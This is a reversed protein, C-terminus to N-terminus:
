NGSMLLTTITGNIYVINASVFKTKGSLDVLSNQNTEDEVHWNVGNLSARTQVVVSGTIIHQMTHNAYASVNVNVSAGPTTVGNFLTVELPTKTGSSSIAALIQNSTALASNTTAQNAATAGTGQANLIATLVANGAGSTAIQTVQNASTAVTGQGNLIATLVSNGAGVTSNIASQNASTALTGQANLIAIDTDNVAKTRDSIVTLTSNGTTQNGSTALGDTSQTGQANLIATITAQTQAQGAILVDVGADLNLIDDRLIIDGNSDVNQVRLVNMGAPVVASFEDVHVRRESDGDKIEIAGISIDGPALNLAISGSVLFVPTVPPVLAPDRIYTVPPNLDSM